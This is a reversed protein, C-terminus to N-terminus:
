HAALADRWRGSRPFDDIRFYEMVEIEELIDDETISTKDIKHFGWEDPRALMVHWLILGIFKGTFERDDNMANSVPRYEEYWEDPGSCVVYQARVVDMRDIRENMARVINDREGPGLAALWTRYVEPYPRKTVPKLEGTNTFKALSM